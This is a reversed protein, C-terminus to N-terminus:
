NLVWARTMPPPEPGEDEDNRVLETAMDNSRPPGTCVHNDHLTEPRMYNDNDHPGVTGMGDDHRPPVAGVSEDDRCPSHTQM